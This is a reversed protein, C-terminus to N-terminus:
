PKDHLHQAIIKELIPINGFVVNANVSQLHLTTIVYLSTLYDKIPLLRIYV